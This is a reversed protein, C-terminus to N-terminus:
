GLRKMITEISWLDRHDVQWGWLKGDRRWPEAQRWAYDLQMGGIIDFTKFDADNQWVLIFLDGPKKQWRGPQLERDKIYLGKGNPRTRVEINPAVDYGLPGGYDAGLWERGLHRAVAIEAATSRINQILHEEPSFIVPMSSQKSLSLTRHREKGTEVAREYDLDSITVRIM